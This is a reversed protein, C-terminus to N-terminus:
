PVSQCKIAAMVDNDYSLEKELVKEKMPAINEIHVKLKYKEEVYMKIQIYTVRGPKKMDFM